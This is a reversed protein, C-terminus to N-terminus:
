LITVIGRDAPQTKGGDTQLLLRGTHDLGAARGETVAADDTVRVRRGLLADLPRLREIITALPVPACALRDWHEAIARATQAKSLRIGEAHLATATPRLAPTLEVPEINVGIGVVTAWRSGQAAGECLIGAVKKGNLLIDNPWRVAFNAAPAAPPVRLASVVVLGMVLALRQRWEAPVNELTLSLYLGGPPSEWTRGHQGRGATQRHAIVALRDASEQRTWRELVRQLAVRNTSDVEQCEEWTWNPVPDNVNM